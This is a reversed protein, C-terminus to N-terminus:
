KNDLHREIKAINISTQITSYLIAALIGGILCLIIDM